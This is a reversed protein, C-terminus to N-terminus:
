KTKPPRNDKPPYLSPVSVGLLEAQIKVPGALAPSLRKLLQPPTSKALKCISRGPDKVSYCLPTLLADAQILEIIENESVGALIGVPILDGIHLLPSILILTRRGCICVLDGDIRAVTLPHLRSLLFAAERTLAPHTDNGGSDKNIVYGISLSAKRSLSTPPLRIAQFPVWEYDTPLRM